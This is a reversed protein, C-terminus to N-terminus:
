FSFQVDGYLSRGEMPIDYPVNPSGPERIDEDLLNKIGLGIKLNDSINSRLF